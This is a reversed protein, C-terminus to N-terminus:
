KENCQKWALKLDAEKKAKPVDKYTNPDDMHRKVFEAETKDTALVGAKDWNLNNVTITKM